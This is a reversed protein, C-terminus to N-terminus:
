DTIDTEFWLEANNNKIINYQKIFSVFEIATNVIDQRFESGCNPCNNDNKGLPYKSKLSNIIISENCNKCVLRINKVESLQTLYIKKTM